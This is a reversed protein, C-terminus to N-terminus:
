FRVEVKPKSVSSWVEITDEVVDFKQEGLTFGNALLMKVIGPVEERKCRLMQVAVEGPTPEPGTWYVVLMPDEPKVAAPAQFPPPRAQGLSSRPQAAPPPQGAEIAAAEAEVDPDVGNGRAASSQWGKGEDFGAVEDVDVVATMLRSGGLSPRVMAYLEEGDLYATLEILWGGGAGDKFRRARATGWERETARGLLQALDSVSGHQRGQEQLHSYLASAAEPTVTAPTTVQDPLQPDPM